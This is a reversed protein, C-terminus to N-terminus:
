IRRSRLFFQDGHILASLLNFLVFAVVFNFRSISSRMGDLVRKQATNTSSFIYFVVGRVCALIDLTAACERVYVYVCENVYDCVWEACAKDLWISKIYVPPTLFVYNSLEVCIHFKTTGNWLFSFQLRGTSASKETDRARIGAVQAFCNKDGYITEM